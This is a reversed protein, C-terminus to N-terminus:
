SFLLQVGHYIRLGYRTAQQAESKHPVLICFIHSLNKYCGGRSLMILSGELLDLIYSLYYRQHNRYFVYTSWPNLGHAM